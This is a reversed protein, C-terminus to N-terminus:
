RDGGGKRNAPAPQAATGLAGVGPEGLAEPGRLQAPDDVIKPTASM